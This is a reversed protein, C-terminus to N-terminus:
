VFNWSELKLVSPLTQLSSHVVNKWQQEIKFKGSVQKAQKHLIFCVNNRNEFKKVLSKEMETINLTFVRSLTNNETRNKPDKISYGSAREKGRKSAERETARRVKAIECVKCSPSADCNYHNNSNWNHFLIWQFCVHSKNKTSKNIIINLAFLSLSIKYSKERFLTFL